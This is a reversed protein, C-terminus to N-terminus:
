GKGGRMGKKESEMRALGIAVGQKWLKYYLDKQDEPIDKLDELMSNALAKDRESAVSWVSEREGETIEDPIYRTISKKFLKAAERKVRESTQSGVRTRLGYLTSKSVDLSKAVDDLSAGVEAQYEELDKVFILREPWREMKTTDPCTQLEANVLEQTIQLPVVFYPTHFVEARSEFVVADRKSRHPPVSNATFLGMKMSNDRPLSVGRDLSGLRNLCGRPAQNPPCFEEFIGSM